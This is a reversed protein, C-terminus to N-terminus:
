EAFGGLDHSVAEDAVYFVNARPETRKRRSRREGRFGDGGVEVIIAPEARGRPPRVIGLANETIIAAAPAAEGFVAAAFIAIPARMMEVDNLPREAHVFGARDFENRFTELASGILSVHVRVADFNFADVFAELGHDLEGTRLPGHPNGAIVIEFGIRRLQGRPWQAGLVDVEVRAVIMVGIEKGANAGALTGDGVHLDAVAAGGDPM